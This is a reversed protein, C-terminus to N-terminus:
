PKAQKAIQRHDAAMLDYETAIGEFSKAIGDCHAAMGAGGRPAVYAKAMKRHEAANARAKAAEQTYYAALAEHDAPTTASEIQQLLAASPTTSVGACGSLVVSLLLASAIRRSLKPNTKM